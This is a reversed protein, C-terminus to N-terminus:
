LLHTIFYMIVYGWLRRVATYIFSGRSFPGGGIDTDTGGRQYNNNEKSTSFIIFTILIRHLFSIACTVYKPPYIITNNTDVFPILVFLCNTM